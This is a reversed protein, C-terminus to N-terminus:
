KKMSDFIGSRMASRSSRMAGFVMHATTSIESNEPKIEAKISLTAVTRIIAGIPRATAFCSLVEGTCISMQMETEDFRCPAAVSTPSVVDIM